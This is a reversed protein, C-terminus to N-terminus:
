RGASDSQRTLSNRNTTTTGRLRNMWGACACGYLRCAGGSASEYVAHTGCMEGQFMGTSV